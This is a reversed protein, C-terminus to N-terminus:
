KVYEELEKIKKMFEAKIKKEFDELASNVCRVAGDEIEDSQYGIADKLDKVYEEASNEFGSFYWKRKYKSQGFLGEGEYQEEYDFDMQSVYYDLSTYSSSKLESIIGSNTSREDFCKIPGIMWDNEAYYVSFLKWGEPIKKSGGLLDSIEAYADALAERVQKNYIYYASNETDECTYYPKLVKLKYEVFVKKLVPRYASESYCLKNFEERAASKAASESSYIAKFQKTSWPAAIYYDDKNLKVDANTIRKVSLDECIKKLHSIVEQVGESGKKQTNGTEIVALAHEPCESVVKNVINMDEATVASGSIFEANGEANERLYKSCNMVCLGCGNCKNSVSIQKM